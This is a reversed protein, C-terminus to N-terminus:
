NSHRSRGQPNQRSGRWAEWGWYSPAQPRNGSSRNGLLRPSCWYPDTHSRCSPMGGCCPWYLFCLYSVIVSEHMCILLPCILISINIQGIKIEFISWLLFISVAHGRKTTINVYLKLTVSHMNALLWMCSPSLINSVGKLAVYAGSVIAVVAKKCVYSHSIPILDFLFVTTQGM